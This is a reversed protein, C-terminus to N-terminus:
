RNPLTFFITTGKGLESEAWIKGGHAEVILRAIYAGLGLGERRKGMKPRTYREFVRPIEHPPIGAGEDRVSVVGEGPKTGVAVTVTGGPPSYELANVVLTRIVREMQGSDAPVPAARGTVVVKEGGEVPDCKVGGVVTQVIAMLDTPRKEPRAQGAELQSALLLDRLMKGLRRTSYVIAEMSRRGREDARSAGFAVAADRMLLEVHGQIATLPQRLDHALALLFDERQQELEQQTTIDRLTLVAGLLGGSDSCIPAASVSAWVPRGPRPHLVVTAGQVLEGRLARMPPTDEPALATGDPAEIHLRELREVLVLRRELPLYGLIELARANVRVVDGERGYVILGDPISSVTADLEALLREREAELRKRETIDRVISLLVREGNISTGQSNVEVPFTSGDRRRHLSEFLLGESDAQDMQSRTLQNTEPARLDQVSLTLLDERSYGYARAAAENAQLIHGDSLRVFLIIDRAHEFLLRYPEPQEGEPRTGNRRDVM